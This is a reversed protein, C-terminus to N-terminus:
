RYGDSLLIWHEDFHNDARERSAAKDGEELLLFGPQNPRAKQQNL